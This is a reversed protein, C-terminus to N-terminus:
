VRSTSRTTPKRASSSSATPMAQSLNRSWGKARCTQPSWSAATPAASTSAPRTTPVAMCAIAPLIREGNQILETGLSPVTNAPSTDVTYGLIDSLSLGVDFSDPIGLGGLSVSFTKRFPGVKIRVGGSFDFDGAINIGADFLNIVKQPNSFGDTIAFIENLRLKGDDNPDMLDFILQGDLNAHANAFFFGANVGGDGGVDITLSFENGPNNRIYFGDLLDKYDPFVGARTSEVVSELGASDYVFSIPKLQLNANAHIGFNLLRFDFGFNGNLGLAIAPLNYSVIDFHNGLLMDLIEGPEIIDLNFGGRQLREGHLTAFSQVDIAGALSTNIRDFDQDVFDFEYSGFNIPSGDYTQLFNAIDAPLGAIDGVADLLPDLKNGVGALSLLTPKGFGMAPGIVDLLPIPQRLFGVGAGVGIDIVNLLPGLSGGVLNAMPAVIGDLLPGVDLTVNNFALRDISASVLPIVPAADLPRITTLRASADVNLDFAIEPLGLSGQVFGLDVTAYDLLSGTDTSFHLRVQGNVDVEPTLVDAIRKAAVKAQLEQHTVRDFLAQNSDPLFLEQFFSSSTDYVDVKLDVTFATDEVLGTDLDVTGDQVHGNVFGLSVNGTLAGPLETGFADTTPAASVDVILHFEDVDNGADDVAGADLFFGQDVGTLDNGLTVGWGLYAEWDVSLRLSGTTEISFGLNALVDSGTLAEFDITADIPIDIQFQQNLHVNWQVWESNPVPGNTISEDIGSTRVIDTINVDSGVDNGDELADLGNPGFVQLIAGEYLELLSANEDAGAQAFVLEINTTLADRMDGLSDLFPQVGSILQNGILPIQNVAAAATDVTDEIRGLAVDFGQVFDDATYTSLLEEIRNAELDGALMLRPELPELFLRRKKVNLRSQKRRYFEKLLHKRTM